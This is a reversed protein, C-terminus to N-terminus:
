LLNEGCLEVSKCSRNRQTVSTGTVQITDIKFLVNLFTYGRRGRCASIDSHLVFDCAPAKSPAAPSSEARNWAASAAWEFARRRSRHNGGHIKRLGEAPRDVERAMPHGQWVTESGEM